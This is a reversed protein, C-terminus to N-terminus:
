GGQLRVPEKAGQDLVAEDRPHEDVRALPITPTKAQAIWAGGPHAHESVRANNASRAQIHQLMEHIESENSRRFGNNAARRAHLAITISAPPHEFSAHQPGAESIMVAHFCM